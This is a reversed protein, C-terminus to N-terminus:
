SELVETSGFINSINDIDSKKPTTKQRPSMAVDPPNSSDDLECTIRYNAGLYKSVAKAIIVNTKKDAIRKQHFPFKVKLVISDDVIHPKAMRLVSYITNNAIKIESLIKQWDVELRREVGTDKVTTRIPIDDPDTKQTKPAKSLKTEEPMNKQVSPIPTSAPTATPTSAPAQTNINTTDKPSKDFIHRLIVLELAMTPNPSGAVKVLEQVLDITSVKDKTTRNDLLHQRISSALQNAVTNARIGTENLDNLTTNVQRVDSSNIAEVLKDITTTPAVGLLTLVDDESITRDYNLFQNLISISDRFSGDGHQAIIRLAKEDIDIKENSAIHKLHKLMVLETIPKFTFRQTRSVITDPVKRIETTALIFIVHSPPEELIKLLANFSENTLMHVEDIIYVKYKSSNPSTYIKERLERIEEIRRNSAADIEIIDTNTVEEDYELGNVEHALIRAISTKGVGRPGTFLYAHSVSNKSISNSLTKTIHEQGLIEGLSKSRYKRYLAKGM